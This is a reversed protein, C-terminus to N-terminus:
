RADHRHRPARSGLGPCLRCQLPHPLREQRSVLGAKPGFREQLAGHKKEKKRKRISPSNSHASCNQSHNSFFISLHFFFAPSSPSKPPQNSPHISNRSSGPSTGVTPTGSHPRGLAPIRLKLRHSRPYILHLSSAVTLYCHNISHKFLQYM